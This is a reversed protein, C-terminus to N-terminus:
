DGKEDCTPQVGAKQLPLLSTLDGEFPEFTALYKYQKSRLLVQWYVAPMSPSSSSAVSFLCFTAHELNASLYRLLPLGNIHSVLANKASAPFKAGSSALLHDITERDVKEPLSSKFRRNQETVSPHSMEVAISGKSSLTARGILIRRSEQQKPLVCTGEPYAEHRECPTSTQPYIYGLGPTVPYPELAFFWYEVPFSAGVMMQGSLSLRYNATRYEPYAAVIVSRVRQDVTGSNQALADGFTSTIVGLLILRASILRLSSM